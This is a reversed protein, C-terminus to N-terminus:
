DIVEARVLHTKVGTLQNFAGLGALGKEVADRWHPQWEDKGADSLDIVSVSSLKGLAAELGATLERKLGSRFAPTFAPNPVLDLLVELKYPVNSEPDPAAAAAPAALAALLLGTMTWRSM